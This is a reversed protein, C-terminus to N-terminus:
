LGAFLDNVSVQWGPLVRSTASEGPGFRRIDWARVAQGAVANRIEVTKTDSDVLWLEKVGLALYTDAKTTKDYNANSKSIYEFVIDASSRRNGMKARLENSVYMMDPEVYTDTTYIAERPHYISGPNGNAGLFLALSLNLRSDVDGHPPDPPPATFLYGGILDYHSRDEPEPLAWFEELTY